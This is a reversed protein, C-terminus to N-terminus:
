GGASVTSIKRGPATKTAAPTTRALGVAGLEDLVAGTLAEVLAQRVPDSTTATQGPVLAPRSLSTSTM